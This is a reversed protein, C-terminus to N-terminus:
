AFLPTTPRWAPTTVMAYRRRCATSRPGPCAITTARFTLADHVEIHAPKWDHRPLGNAPDPTYLFLQNTQASCLLQGTPLMLFASQWTFNGAPLTPQADLLPLTTAGGHPDFELFVPNQSFFDGSEPETNGALCVVKGSPLLCAPADLATLTPWNPSSSTDPPFAPGKTWSGPSNLHPGPTFIATQGTGGIAFVKGDPLLIRPRNRVSRRRQAHRDGAAGSRCPCAGM